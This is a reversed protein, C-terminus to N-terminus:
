RTMLGRELMAQAHTSRRRKQSDSGVTGPRFAHRGQNREGSRTPSPARLGPGFPASSEHNRMMSRKECGGRGHRIVGCQFCYKPLREYRFVIWTSEGQLKLIRGRSLPNSLDIKIKVRLFEGWGVGDADTDVEEM